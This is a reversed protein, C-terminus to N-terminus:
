FIHHTHLYQSAAIAVGAIDITAGVILRAPESKKLANMIM